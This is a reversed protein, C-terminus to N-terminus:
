VLAAVAIGPAAVALTNQLNELSLGGFLSQLATGLGALKPQPVGLARSVAREVMDGLESLFCCTMWCSKQM